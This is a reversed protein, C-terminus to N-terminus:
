VAPLSAVSSAPPRRAKEGHFGLHTTVAFVTYASFFASILMMGEMGINM